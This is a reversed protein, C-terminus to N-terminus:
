SSNQSEMQTSYSLSYGLIVDILLSVVKLSPLISVCIQWCPEQLLRLRQLIRSVGVFKIPQFKKKILYMYM